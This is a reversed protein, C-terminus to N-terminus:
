SAAGKYKLFAGIKGFRDLKSPPTIHKVPLGKAMAAEIAEDVVDQVPELKVGCAPCPEASLFLRSCGRCMYGPSSFNRTVILTQAQYHNLSELTDRLGSAARGDKELEATLRLVLDDEQKKKLGREVEVVEKLVQDASASPRAKLWAVLRGKVYPHLMDELGARHEDGTGVFLWDFPKKKLIDFTMQAAKKFYEHIHANIHREINSAKYGLFGAPKVKAPVDSILKELFRGADMSFEYWQAEKRDILLACILRHEDLISSLPQVYANKDFIIRNRPADALSFDQWLNEGHCAFVAMGPDHLGMVQSNGFAAIKELDKAASEKAEKGLNMAELRDRGSTVLNKLSVGIEKKSLRAKDTDLFFSIVPFKLSKFKSLKEVQNRDLLKM